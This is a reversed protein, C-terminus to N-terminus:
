KNFYHLLLLLLSMSLILTVLFKRMTSSDNGTKKLYENGKQTDQVTTISDDFLRCTLDHQISLHSQLTTQLRSIELIQTETTSLTEFLGRSIEEIMRTNEMQLMANASPTPTPTDVNVNNTFTTTHGQGIAHGQGTSYGGTYGGTYGGGAYGGTSKKSEQSSMLIKERNRKRLKYIELDETIRGIRSELFLIVLKCHELIPNSNLIPPKFLKLLFSSTKLIKVKEEKFEELKKKMISVNMSCINLAEEITETTTTETTKATTSTNRNNTSFSSFNFQESKQSIEKLKKSM